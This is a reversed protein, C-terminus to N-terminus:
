RGTTWPQVFNRIAAAPMAGQQRAVERGDIFLAM